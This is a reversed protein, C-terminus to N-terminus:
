GEDDFRKGICAEIQPFLSEFQPPTAFRSTRALLEMLKLFPFFPTSFFSFFLHRDITNVFLHGDITNVYKRMFWACFGAEVGSWGPLPRACGGNLKASGSPAFSNAEM